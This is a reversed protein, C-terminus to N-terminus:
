NVIYDYSSQYQSDIYGDLDNGKYALIRVIMAGVEDRTKSSLNFVASTFFIEENNRFMDIAEKILKATAQAQTMPETTKINAVYDKWVDTEYASHRVPAYGSALAFEATKEAQLMFKVFLWAAIMQQEKGPQHFLNINPGQQIQKRHNADKVPVPAVGVRYGDDFVQKPMSDYAYRTGGTSGVYMYLDKGTKMIDSTYAEGNLMRTIMLGADVKSKFYKAMEKSEANNFLVEGRGTEVNYGTYPAKWQESATIFLNDESDYGVPIADPERKKIDEAIAFVEDWTTPVEYGHEEFYTANYFLAESSKTFPLSLITGANDYSSGEAWLGSLFDSVEDETYGLIPHNIFNNLALPKEAMAYRAIHDPYSEAIDPYNGATIALSIKDALADYSAAAKEEVVTINPYIENFEKIWKQVMEQNAQGMRHWFTITVKSGDYDADEALEYWDVLRDKVDSGRDGGCAVLVLSFVALLIVAIFRKM